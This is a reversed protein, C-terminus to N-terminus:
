LRVAKKEQSTIKKLLREFSANRQYSSINETQLSFLVALIQRAEKAMEAHEYKEAIWEDWVQMLKEDKKLYWALFVDDILLDTVETYKKGTNM